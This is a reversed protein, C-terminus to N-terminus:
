HMLSALSSPLFALVCRPEYLKCNEVKQDNANGLEVLAEGMPMRLLLPRNGDIILDQVTV